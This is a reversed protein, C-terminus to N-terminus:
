ALYEEAMHFLEKQLVKARKIYAGESNGCVQDNIEPLYGIYYNLNERINSEDNLEDDKIRKFVAKKTLINAIEEENTFIIVKNDM